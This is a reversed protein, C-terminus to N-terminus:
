SLGQAPDQRRLWEAFIPDVIRWKSSKGEVYGRDRMRELGRRTSNANSLGYRRANETSGIANRGALLLLAKASNVEYSEGALLQDFTSQFDVGPVRGCVLEEFARRVQDINIEEGETASEWAVWALHQTRKPHAETLEILEDLARPEIAKGSAEFMLELYNLFAESDIAPIAEDHTQDWIPENSSHLMLALRERMSGTLLLSVKNTQSPEMLASRIISLPEGPCSNLRQFEDFIVVLNEDISRVAELQAMLIEGQSELSPVPGGRFGAKVVGLNIEMHKELRNFGGQVRRRLKKSPHSDVASSIAGVFAPISIARRLDIRISEWPPADPGHDKALEKQLELAFSSKGTGRPGFLAVHTEAKLRLATTEAFKERGVGDHIAKSWIFPNLAM